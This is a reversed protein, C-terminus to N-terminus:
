PTRVKPRYIWLGLGLRARYRLDKCAGNVREHVVYIQAHTLMLLCRQMKAPGIGVTTGLLSGSM